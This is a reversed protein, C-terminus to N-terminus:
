YIWPLYRRSSKAYRRYRDGHQAILHEEEARVQIEMVVFFLVAYFGTAATPWIFWVGLNVIHLGLYTPNRIRRFIGNTILVTGNEKDIGVRWSEGMTRQALWCIFLGVVGLVGGVIDFTLRELVDLRATLGMSSLQFGHLAILGIVLVTFVHVLEAFYAQVPSTAKALVEPDLGKAGIMRRRKIAWLAVYGAFLSAVLATEAFLGM